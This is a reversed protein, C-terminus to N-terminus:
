NIKKLEVILIIALDRQAQVSNHNCYCLEARLLEDDHCFHTLLVILLYEENVLM